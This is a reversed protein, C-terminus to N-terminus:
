GAFERLERALAAPQDLPILTYCDPLEVYSSNPFAGALARGEDNPMMKGEADWVVLVPREFGALAPTAARIDKRGKMAAGAYKRLDRRIEARQLPELWSQMLEEPIGRKSMQGYVMPLQRLTRNRLTLRMIQLGGPLKCSLWAANGALGPPYNGATECSVLALRGVRDMLDDAIMTQAGGWDNFCLVVDDLELRELFEAVIRGIGRLSLDADAQLPHRHAGFPLVPTLCRFGPALEDIVGEWLRGDMALGPLMVLVPGAGGSDGYELTGVSLEVQAM